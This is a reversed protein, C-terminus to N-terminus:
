QQQKNQILPLYFIFRSGNPDINEAYISGHHAKMIEHCIALGLGTGGAGTQTKSSQIFKDFVSDLEDDPIGIGNDEIVFKAMMEDDLRDTLLYIDISKNEPTFKIANSLLNNIVQMIKEEDYVATEPCEEADLNISLNKQQSLPNLQHIVSETTAQLNNDKLNLQIRGSELKELDLLDNLLFLLRQGSQTILDFYQKTKEKDLTGAKSSGLDSFSLIGHLPTRLEHSMNALFISKAQNAKKAEHGSKRAKKIAKKLDRTRSSVQEELENFATVINLTEMSQKDSFQKDTRGFAKLKMVDAIDIIPKFIMIDMLILILFIYLLFLGIIISLIYFLEQSTENFSETTENKKQQLYQRSNFLSITIHDILPSIEFEMLHSDERWHDSESLERLTIFNRYWDHQSKIVQQIISKGEFSGTETKYFKELDKLKDVYAEHIATLSSAQSILIEDSFLALRNAIYIRIQAIEKELLLRAQLIENDLSDSKPKFDGNEIEEYLLTLLGKMTNQQDAMVNASLSMGPYQQDPDQRIKILNSIHPEIQDLTFLLDKRVKLLHDSNSVSHIQLIEQKAIKIESKINLIHEQDEPNNLFLNVSRYLLTFNQLVEDISNLNTNIESLTQTSSQNKESM